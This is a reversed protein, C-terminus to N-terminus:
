APPRAEMVNNVISVRRIMVLHVNPNLERGDAEYRWVNNMPVEDFWTAPNAPDSIGPM